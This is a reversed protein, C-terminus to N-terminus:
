CDYQGEGTSRRGQDRWAEPYSVSQNRYTMASSDSSEELLLAVEDVHLECSRCRTIPLADHIWAAAGPTVRQSQRKGISTGLALFEQVGTVIAGRQTYLM